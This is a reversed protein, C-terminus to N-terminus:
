IKKDNYKKIKENILKNLKENVNYKKNIEQIVKNLKENINYKNIKKEIVENLLKKINEKNDKRIYKKTQWLPVHKINENAVGHRLGLDVDRNIKKIFKKDYNYYNKPQKPKSQIFKETYEIANNLWGSTISFFILLYLM